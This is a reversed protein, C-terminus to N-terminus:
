LNRIAHSPALLVTVKALLPVSALYKFLESLFHCLESNIVLPDIIGQSINQPYSCLDFVM